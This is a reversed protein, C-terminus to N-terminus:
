RYSKGSMGEAIRTLEELQSGTLTDLIKELRARHDVAGHYLAYLQKATAVEKTETENHLYIETTAPNSHRMYNQALYLNGTMEMVATGCSHRLSHATLRDSDFGAAQMARKLMKSITTPDLRRGGSRNGTAVFLPSTGTRPDRRTDLYARVAEAVEPALPKKQDPEEHGKGWVYLWSQGESTILDRINARSLEVTRLGANTALLYMAYLRQTQEGSRQLRGAQDKAAEQASQEQAVGQAVISQEITLVQTITLAEKRHTTTNAKPPHVNEAINPYRGTSATWRFFSCVIRLYQARTNAKCSIRLPEGHSDTRYCWGTVPDLQIADHEEALWDRYALIDQRTPRTISSYALWAAFQKLNTLYSRTTKEGRGIWSIFESFLAPDLDLVPAISQGGQPILQVRPRGTM